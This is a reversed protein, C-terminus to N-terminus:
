ADDYAEDEACDEVGETVFIDSWRKFGFLRFLGYIAIAYGTIVITTKVIAEAIVHSM